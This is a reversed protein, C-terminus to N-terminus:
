TLLVSVVIVVAAVAAGIVTALLWLFIPGERELKELKANAKQLKRERVTPLPKIESDGFENRLYLLFLNQFEM